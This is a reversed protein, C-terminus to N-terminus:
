YAWWYKTYEAVDGESGMSSYSSSPAAPNRPTCRGSSYPPPPAPRGSSHATISSTAAAPQGSSIITIAGAIQPEIRAACPDGSSFRVQSGPSASPVWVRDNAIVSGSAPDLVWASFVVARRSPSEYTILPVLYQILPASWASAMKSTVRSPSASGAPRSVGIDINTTGAPDSPSLMCGMSASSTCGSFCNVTNKSWTRTGAAASTPLAPFPNRATNAPSLGSRTVAAAM